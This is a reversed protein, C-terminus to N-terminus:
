KKGAPVLRKLEEFWNQIFNIETVPQPAVKEMKVMLFGQGPWLDWNGRLPFGIVSEQTPLKFLLHPRDASFGEGTRINTVWVGREQRTWWDAYFLKTGDRSWLPLMGGETSIRWRRGPGPFPRVWVEFTGSENSGYALWRGDPSFEPYMEGAETNLFPTVRRSKMDLMLIDFGTKPSEEIFALISGDPNFSGPFQSIESTTLREMPSSGDESQQYLNTTGGSIPRDFVIRKGDPTWVMGIANRVDMELPTPAGRSLDYIWWNRNMGVTQYLIKKGDPALRLCGYPAKLDVVSQINGKEDVSVLSDQREPLIGGPVYALLGSDSISYQGAATWMETDGSNLAQMMDAVVPAPKGQVELRDLDFAVAMMIGQRMFIVHGTRVYRGDAADEILERWKRTQLDLLNLRPHPDFGERAVTFLMARGGPLFHPLRHGYEGRAKDPVTLAEPKGGESPIRSLGSFEGDTFVITNDPGWDAGFLM